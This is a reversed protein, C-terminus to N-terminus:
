PTTKEWQVSFGEDRQGLQATAGGSNDDPDAQLYLDHSGGRTYNRLFINDGSASKDKWWLADDGNECPEVQVDDGSTTNGGEHGDISLCVDPSGGPARLQYMKTGGIKKVYHFKWIEELDGSCRANDWPISPHEWGVKAKDGTDFGTAYLCGDRKENKLIWIDDDDASAQGSGALITTAMVAACGAALVVNRVKKM